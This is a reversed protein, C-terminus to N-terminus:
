EPPHAQARVDAGRGVPLTEGIALVRVRERALGLRRREAELRRPPEDLPEDTLKFTGWHMAVFTRAGLAAFAQLAQEPNLHQPEMFWAPDYAGIPLLAADIAPFRAGIEAFGSFSATDGSHYVTARTGEIVFGGWLTRNTDALGRRSWHQAPVFTVRVGRVTTSSWWGLETAFLGRDRFYRELGLGAVVPAGVRVLTPLDLHDYHGHSVLVADIPPLQELRVGPPVNRSVGGFIAPMLAPDVLLSVGDLQVLFSAHGLWTVRAPEGPGPPTALLALDPAVAPVPARAPSVRRRGTIRDWIAWRLVAGLGHPAGPDLNAFRGEADRPQAFAPLTMTAALFLAVLSHTM